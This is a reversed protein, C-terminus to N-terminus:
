FSANLSFFFSTAPPLSSYIDTVRYVPDVGDKNKRWIIGLNRVAGNLAVSKFPTRTLIHQPLVYGIDVQQLRVHSGSIVLENANAYRSVSNFQWGDNVIAPINTSAEDGAQQWRQALDAQMGIAGSYFNWQPYNQVSLRRIVHGLEYTMRVGLSIGKYNFTNFLGGVYPPTTRGVLLLDDASLTNIGQDVALISGDAKKIQSRGQSDLGGWNYAYMYDVPLGVIPRSGAILQSVNTLKEFRSDSVENSNFGMNFMSSWRFDVRQIWNANLGLDVGHAKMTASNFTLQTWGYTPNFPLSHLIDSVRKQYYDVTFQLRNDWLGYDLGLNLTKIKEWSIQNNAPSEITAVGEGTQNDSSTTIVVKSGVGFPMTGNVGYTVRLALADAWNASQMFAEKKIDWKTGVSWLPQARQARSAGVVTFDDFRISGSVVYRSNFASLATNSYYSLARTINKGVTANGPFSAGWGDITDYRDNPKYVSNVFTFPDFGIFNGTSSRHSNEKIESGGIFALNVLGNNGFDKNINVQARVTYQFGNYNRVGLNGGVPYNYVLNGDDNVTTGYNIANRMNYSDVFDINESNDLKRQLQGMVSFNAWSTLKTNVDLHMRLSHTQDNYKSTELEELPSYTWDLYGLGEFYQAVEPRYRLYKKVLSGGDDKLLDYPLLGGMQPNTSLANITATNTLSNGYNYNIGTAIRVRDNFLDNTLNSTLNLTEGKNARFVPVDKSYNGSVFFNSKSTGGSFSVGYQQSTANQMLLDRIQGRNDIGGLRSLAADREEETATGRKVRFMWELSETLPANTNMTGWYTTNDNIMDKNFLERELDIYEGTTMRNLKKLDAPASVSVTSNFNVETPKNRGKKTEIVIVGNGAKAGWISAAAADKLVTISEIDNPNLQSLVAGGGGQLSSKDTLKFSEDRNEAMPFGDIVILPDRTAGVGFSNAGRIQIANTKPDVYVGPVLGQIREMINITPTEQIQKSSITGFSGTAREKPLQTYGMSVVEVDEILNIAEGMTVNIETNSGIVRRQPEMGVYSFILAEAPEQLRITFHGDSSTTVGNRVAYGDPLVTVGVLAQGKADKVNGSLVKWFRSDGDNDKAGRSDRIITYYNNQVYLFLFGNPYLLEKLVSEIPKKKDKPQMDAPVQAQKLLGEEYSFKTGYIRTVESLAQALSVRKQAYGGAYALLCLLLLLLKPKM